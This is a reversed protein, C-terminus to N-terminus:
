EIETHHWYPGINSSGEMSTYYCPLYEISWISPPIELHINSDIIENKFWYASGAYYWEPWCFPKTLSAWRQLTKDNFNTLTGCFLKSQLAGEINEINLCNEFIKSRWKLNQATPRSNTVGKTHFRFTIGDCGRLARFSPEICVHECFESRPVEIIEDFGWEGFLKKAREIQFNSLPKICANYIWKNSPVIGQVDRFAKVLNNIPPAPGCVVTAIKKGNFLNKTLELFELTASEWHNMPYCHYMLNRQM